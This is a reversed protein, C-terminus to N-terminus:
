SWSCLLACRTWLCRPLFWVNYDRKRSFSFEEYIGRKKRFSTSRPSIRWLSCRTTRPDAKGPLRTDVCRWVQKRLAESAYAERIQMRGSGPVREDARKWADSSSGKEERGLRSSTTRWSFFALLTLARQSCLKFTVCSRSWCGLESPEQVRSWWKKKIQKKM